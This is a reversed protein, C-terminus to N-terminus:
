KGYSSGGTSFSTVKGDPGLMVTLTKSSQGTIPAPNFYNLSFEQRLEVHRWSLTMTGESTKNRYIPKGFWQLLEAETTQGKKIQSVKQEDWNSGAQHVCAVLLLLVGTSISAYLTKLNKM